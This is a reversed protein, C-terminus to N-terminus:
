EQNLIFWNFKIAQSASATAQGPLDGSNRELAVIFGEGVKKEKIYLSLGNTKSIPTLNILSEENVKDSSIFVETEGASFSAEGATKATKRAVLEGFVLKQFDGVIATVKQFFAEGVDSIWAIVQGATNKWVFKTGVSITAVLNNETDLTLLNSPNVSLDVPPQWWTRNIFMLVLGEETGSYDELAMGIVFGAEKAKMAVGPIASATLYDGKKIPDTGNNTTVRTPVRGVLGVEVTQLEDSTEGLTIKPISSVVGLVLPDYASSTPEVEAVQSGEATKLRVLSGPSANGLYYEAIDSNNVPDFSGSVIQTQESTAGAIEGPPDDHWVHVFDIFIDKINATTGANENSVTWGLNVTPINTTIPSSCVATGNIFFRAQAVATNEIEIRLTQLTTTSVAIGSDASTETSANRTVCFWNTGSSTKRFYVGDTPDGSSNAGLADNTFGVKHTHDTNSSSRLSVEMVPNENKRFGIVGGSSMNCGDGLTAGNQGARQRITSRNNDALTIWGCDVDEDLVMGYYNADATISISGGVFDEYVFDWSSHFRGYLEFQDRTTPGGIAVRTFDLVGQDSLGITLLNTSSPGLIELANGTTLGTTNIQIATGTTVSNINAIIADDDDGSNFTLNTAVGTNGITIVDASTGGTGINITDVGTGVGLNITSASAAKGLTITGDDLFQAFATGADRIIFDASGSLDFWVDGVDAGGATVQLPSATSGSLTILELLAQQDQTGNTSASSESITLGSDVGAVTFDWNWFISNANSDQVSGAGTAALVSDLTPSGSGGTTDLDSITGNQCKKLKADTSNAWIAYLGASCTPNSAEETFELYDNGSGNGIIALTNFTANASFTAVDKVDLINAGDIIINNGAGSSLTVAGAGTYSGGSVISVSDNILVASGTHQLNGSLQIDGAVDLEIGSDPTVTNGIRTNAALINYNSDNNTDGEQYIGYRTSGSTLPEIYLGRIPALSSVSSNSAHLINISVASGNISEVKGRIASLTIVGSGSASQDKAVADIAVVENFLIFGINVRSEVYLGYVSDNIAAGDDGGSASAVIKGGYNLYSGTDAFGTPTSTTSTIDLGQFTGGGSTFSKSQSLVLIKNADISATSGFAGHGSVDLDDNIDVASDSDSITGTLTLSGLGTINNSNFALATSSFNYEDTGAVQLNVTKGSLANLNLDGTNDSGIYVVSGAPLTKNRFQLAGFDILDFGDADIDSTWPTQSGGGCSSISITGSGNSQFCGSSDASPWTWVVNTGVTAPSKFAIYNSSDSDALRLEGQLGLTVNGSNSVTFNPANIYNTFAGGGTNTIKIADTIALNTDANNIVIASDLGNSNASDAQQIFLGQTTGASSSPTAIISIIDVTGALDSTLALNETGSFTLNVDTNFTATGNVTITDSAANGLGITTSNITLTTGDDTTLTGSTFNDSTDSRLFATSDIGDLNDSNLAYPSSAIRQRPSLTEGAITIELYTAANDRFISDAIATDATGDLLCDDSTDQGGLCVSFIGNADPTVSWNKSTWLLTGGTEADYIKFVITKNTTVPNGSPDTLRGQFSLVRPPTAALVLGKQIETKLNTIDIPKPSFFGQWIMLGVILVTAASAGWNVYDSMPHGRYAHWWRPKQFKPLKDFGALLLGVWAKKRGDGGVNVLGPRTMKVPNTEYVINEKHLDFFARLSYLQSQITSESTGRSRLFSIYREIDKNSVHNIDQTTLTKNARFSPKLWNFFSVVANTYIKNTTSSAGESTIHKSYQEIPSIITQSINQYKQPSQNLEIPKVTPITDSLIKGNSKLWLTFAKLSYSFRRITSESFREKLSDFVQQFTEQNIEIETPLNELITKLDSSYNKITSRSSKSQVLHEVFLPVLNQLDVKKLM